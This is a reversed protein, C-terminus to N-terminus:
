QNFFIFYKLTGKNYMCSVPLAQQASPASANFYRTKEAVSDLMVGSKAYQQVSDANTRGLVLPLSKRCYPARLQQRRM